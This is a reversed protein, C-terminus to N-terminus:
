APPEADGAEPLAPKIEAALARAEQDEGTLWLALLRMIPMDNGTLEVMQRPKGVGYEWLFRRARWEGRKARKVTELIIDDIDQDTVCERLREVFREDVPRAPRGPGGPNGPLFKGGEDKWGTYDKDETM